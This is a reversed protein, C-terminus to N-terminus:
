VSNHSLIQITGMCPSATCVTKARNSIFAFLSPKSLHTRSQHSECCCHNIKTLNIVECQQMRNLLHQLSSSASAYVIWDNGCGRGRDKWENWAQADSRRVASMRSHSTRTSDIHRDIQGQFLAAFESGITCGWIGTESVGLSYRAGRFGRIPAISYSFALGWSCLGRHETSVGAWCMVRECREVYSIQCIFTTLLPQIGKAGRTVKYLSRLM